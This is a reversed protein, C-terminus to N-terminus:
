AIQVAYGKKVMGTLMTHAADNGHSIVLTTDRFDSPYDYNNLFTSKLGTNPLLGDSYFSNALNPTLQMGARQETYHADCFMKYANLRGGSFYAMAINPLAEQIKEGNHALVGVQSDMGDGFRLLYTFRMPGVPSKRAREHLPFFRLRTGRRNNEYKGTTTYCLMQMNEADDFELPIRIDTTADFARVDGRYLGRASGVYIDGTLLNLVVTYKIENDKILTVSSSCAHRRVAPEGVSELERDFADGVRMEGEGHRKLIDDFYSSSDVPDSIITPTSHEIRVERPVRGCEETIIVGTQNYVRQIQDMHGSCGNGLAITDEAVIDFFRTDKMDKRSYKARTREDFQSLDRAAEGVPIDRLVHFMHRMIGLTGALMIEDSDTLYMFSM